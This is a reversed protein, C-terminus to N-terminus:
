KEKTLILSVPTIFERKKDISNFRLQKVNPYHKLGRILLERLMGKNKKDPRIAIDLIYSECGTINFRCVGILEGEDDSISVITNWEAHKQLAEYLEKYTGEAHM